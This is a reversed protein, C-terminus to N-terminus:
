DQFLRNKKKCSGAADKWPDIGYIVSSEGLRLAIETLPFGTGFGIDLATINKRYDIYDLLKLGFSASWLPCEDAVEAYAALDFDNSLYRKM